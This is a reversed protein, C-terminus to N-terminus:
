SETSIWTSALAPRGFLYGQALGIGIELAAQAVDGTEVGELIVECGFDRALNAVNRVIKSKFEQRHFDAGFEQSIKMYAPRVRELHRLHSYAVGVDDFAFRCGLSTLADIHRLTSPLDRMAAQETIEIVLRRPDVGYRAAAAEIGDVVRREALVVPHVNLFIRAGADLRAGERMANDICRLELDTMRSKRVSYEFLFEPVRLPGPTNLRSLAEYAVVTPAPGDLSVIPQFVSYLASGSLIEDIHPIDIIDPMDSPVAHDDRLAADIQETTFPKELVAFAGRQKAERQLEPSLSGTMLVVRSHPAHRTVFNIFDLGDISFPGTLRMDTVVSRVPMREIVLQASEIDGCTVVTRGTAGVAVAVGARTIPEDDVVLVMEKM